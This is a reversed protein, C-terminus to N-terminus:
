VDACKTHAAGRGKTWAVFEGVQYEGGCRNCRGTYRSEIVKAPVANTAREAPDHLEIRHGHILRAAVHAATRAEPAAASDNAALAILRQIKALIPTVAVTRYAARSAPAV